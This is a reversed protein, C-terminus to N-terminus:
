REGRVARDRKMWGRFKDDQGHGARFPLVQKEQCLCPYPTGWGKAYKRFPPFAFSWVWRM